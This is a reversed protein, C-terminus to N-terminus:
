PEVKQFADQQGTPADDEDVMDTGESTMQPAIAADQPGELTMPPSWDPRPYAPPRLDPRLDALEAPTPRYDIWMRPPTWAAKLGPPRPQALRLTEIFVMVDTGIFHHELEDHYRAVDAENDDGFVLITVMAPSIRGAGHAALRELAVLRQELDFFGTM